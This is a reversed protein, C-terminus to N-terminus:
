DDKLDDITITRDTGIATTIRGTKNDVTSAGIKHSSFNLDGLFVYDNLNKPSSSKFIEKVPVHHIESNFTVKLSGDEGAHAISEDLLDYFRNIYVLEPDYDTIWIERGDITWKTPAANPDSKVSLDNTIPINIQGLAVSDKHPTINAYPPEIKETLNGESVAITHGSKMANSIQQILRYAASDGDLNQDKRLAECAAIKGKTVARNEIHNKHKAIAKAIENADFDLTPTLVINQDNDTRFRMELPEYSGTSIQFHIESEDPLFLVVRLDGEAIYYRYDSLLITFERGAQNVLIGNFGADEWANATSAFSAAATELAENFEEIYLTYVKANDDTDIAKESPTITRPNRNM